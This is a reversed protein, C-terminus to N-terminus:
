LKRPGLRMLVALRQARDGVQSAWRSALMNDAADGYKGEQIYRLTNRFSSLGNRGNGIGMNFCMNVLVRQRVPDLKRWWPFRDDLDRMARDIDNDLLTQSQAKTVGKQICSAKTIKLAETEKSSIGVDDLNRGVGITLKGAACRYVRFKEGEDRTLEARLVERNLSDM